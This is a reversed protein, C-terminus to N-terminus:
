GCYPLALEDIASEHRPKDDPDATQVVARNIREGNPRFVIWISGRHSFRPQEPRIVHDIVPGIRHSILPEEDLVTIGRGFRESPDGGSMHLREAAAIGVGKGGTVPVMWGVQM